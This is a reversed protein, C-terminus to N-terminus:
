NWLGLRCIEKGSWSDIGLSLFGRAEAADDGFYAAVITPYADSKSATQHEHLIRIGGEPDSIDAGKVAGSQRWVWAEQDLM